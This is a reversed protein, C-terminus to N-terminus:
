PIDLCSFCLNRIKPCTSSLESAYAKHFPCESGLHLLLFWKIILVHFFGSAVSLFPFCLSKWILEQFTVCKTAPCYKYPLTPKPVQGQVIWWLWTNLWSGSGCAEAEFRLLACVDKLCYVPIVLKATKCSFTGQAPWGSLVFGSASQQKQLKAPCPNVHGSQWVCGRGTGWGGWRQPACLESPPQRISSCVGWVPSFSLYYLVAGEWMSGENWAQSPPSLPDCCRCLLAYFWCSNQKWGDQTEMELWWKRIMAKSRSQILACPEARLSAVAGQMFAQLAYTHTCKHMNVPPLAFVLLEKWGRFDWCKKAEKNTKNWQPFFFCIPSEQSFATMKLSFSIIGHFYIIFAHNQRSTQALNKFFVGWNASLLKRMFLLTKKLFNHCNATSWILLSIIQRGVSSMSNAHLYNHHSFQRHWVAKIITQLLFVLLVFVPEVAEAPQWHMIIPESRRIAERNEAGPQM